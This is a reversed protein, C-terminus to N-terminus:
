SRGDNTRMAFLSELRRASARVDFKERAVKAAAAGMSEALGSERLITILAVALEREDREAVLLGTVGNAVAEPIGSHLTGVTPRGLASAELIVQPLGEQDGSRAEVSPVCLVRAAQIARLVDIHASAGHFTVVKALGLQKVQTELEPRLPGEGIIDLAVDPVHSRVQTLANILHRTGKKEVLRAVHVIRPADPLPTARLSEVDVGNPVVFLRDEHAGLQIAQRRVHESVCIFSTYRNALFTPRRVAYRMWAPRRSALLSRTTRSVDFGHLTTFHPIGLRKAASLSVEGEVGFHAHLVSLGLEQGARRIIREPTTLYNIQSARSGSTMVATRVGIVPNIIPDRALLVPRTSLAQAQTVIFQESRLFLTHRLVGIQMPEPM